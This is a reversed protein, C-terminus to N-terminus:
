QKKTYGEKQFRAIIRKNLEPMLEQAWALSIDTAEKSLAPMIKIMKQGVPTKYFAILDKVDQQTYYKAYLMIKKDLLISINENMIKMAEDTGIKIMADPANPSIQKIQSTMITTLMEAYQSIINKFGEIEILTVIDDHFDKAIPKEQAALSSSLCLASLMVILLIKKMAAEMEIINGGEKGPLYFLHNGAGKETKDPLPAPVM